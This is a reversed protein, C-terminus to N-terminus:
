LSLTSSPTTSPFARGQGSESKDIERTEVGGGGKEGSCKVGTAKSSAIDMITDGIPSIDFLYNMNNFLAMGSDVADLLWSEPLLTADPM